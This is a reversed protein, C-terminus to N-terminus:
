PVSKTLFTKTAEPVAQIEKVVLPDSPKDEVFRYTPKEGASDAKMVDIIAQDARIQVLVLNGKERALHWMDMKVPQGDKDKPLLTQRTAQDFPVIFNATVPAALASASLMLGLIISLILNVM